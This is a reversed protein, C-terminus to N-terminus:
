GSQEEPRPSDDCWVIEGNTVHFHTRCGGTHRISPSLTPKGESCVRMTWARSAVSCGPSIPIHVQCDPDRCPCQFHVAWPGLEPNYVIGYMVDPDLVDPLLDDDAIALYRLVM